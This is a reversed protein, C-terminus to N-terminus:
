LQGAGSGSILKLKEKKKKLLLSTSPVACFHPPPLFDSKSIGRRYNYRFLSPAAHPGQHALPLKPNRQLAEIFNPLLLDEEGGGWGGGGRYNYKQHRLHHQSRIKAIFFISRPARLSSLHRCRARAKM